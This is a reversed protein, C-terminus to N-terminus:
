VEKDVLEASAKIPKSLGFDMTKTNDDWSTMDTFIRRGLIVGFKAKIIKDRLIAINVKLMKLAAENDTIPELDKLAKAVVQKAPTLNKGAAIDAEVDSIKPISNLGSLSIELAKAVYADVSEGKTTKPSFGGPTVGYQKLFAAGDEGYKKAFDESFEPKEIRSNLIKQSVRLKYLDFQWTFMDKATVPAAMSRNIVPMGSVDIVYTTNVKFPELPIGNQKLLDYTAKTLVVPLKKVNVIGDRIIAYNRWIFSDVSEGFGLENKPLSVSGERRTLISVNPRDEDFKLTSIAAKVEGEKSSFVPKFGGEDAVTERKGGIASYSFEPHSIHLFNGETDALDMLLTLVNYANPDQKLKLNRPKDVFPHYAGVLAVVRNFDQKSFANQVTNFLTEDGILGSLELAKDSEGRQVLAGVVQVAAFEDEVEAIDGSGTFYSYAICNSPMAVKGSADAKATVYSEDMHGVIMTDLPLGEVIKRKGSARTNLSRTLVDTYSQFDGAGIMEGGMEEAMQTLFADDAYYGYSVVVSSAVTDAVKTCVKIIESRSSQNEGGDTMFNLSVPRDSSAIALEVVKELPDKFGTAGRAVLFRDIATNVAQLDKANTINLNEFITGCEGRSSFWILTLTDDPAVMTPLKNKLQTRLKPLEGYMSGSCDVVVIRQMPIAIDTTQNEDFHKTVLKM